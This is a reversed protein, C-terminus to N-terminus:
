AGIRKTTQKADRRKKGKELNAPSWHRFIDKEVVEGRGEGHEEATTKKRPAPTANGKWGLEALEQPSQLRDM